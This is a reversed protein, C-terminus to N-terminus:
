DLREFHYSLKGKENYVALKRVNKIEFQHSDILEQRQERKREQDKRKEELLAKEIAQRIREEEERQKNEAVKTQMRNMKGAPTQM